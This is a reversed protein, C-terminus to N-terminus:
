TARCHHLSQRSSLNLCSPSCFLMTTAGYRLGNERKSGNCNRLTGQWIRNNPWIASIRATESEAPVADVMRNLPTVSDYTGREELAYRKIWNLGWGAALVKLAGSKRERAVARCKNVDAGSHFGTYGLGVLRHCAERVHLLRRKTDRSVLIAGCHRRSM